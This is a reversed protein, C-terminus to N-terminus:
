RKLLDIISNFITKEDLKVRESLDDYTGYGRIYKDSTNIGLARRIGESPADNYNSPDESLLKFVKTNIKIDNM